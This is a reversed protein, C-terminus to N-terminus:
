NAAASDSALSPVARARAFTAPCLSAAVVRGSAVQGAREDGVRRWVGTFEGRAWNRRGGFTSISDPMTSKRVHFAALLGSLDLAGVTRSAGITLRGARVGAM